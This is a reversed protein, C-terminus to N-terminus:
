RTARINSSLSEKTLERQLCAYTTSVTPSSKRKKKRKPKPMPLPKAKREKQPKAPMTAANYQRYPNTYLDASHSNYYDYNEKRVANRSYM